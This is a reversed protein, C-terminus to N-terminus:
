ATMERYLAAYEAAMRGASFNDRVHKRGGTAISESFAEDSLLRDWCKMLGGVDGFPAMLGTKEHIILRDVGPIDFAAVPIGMAMAEMMCRPIGELSSTMCFLHMEKLIHLRDTRYGWFEIKTSSDLSAAFKELEKRMPGDGVLVLRIDNRKKCLLDFARIMDIINKRHAIQGVYGIIKENNTTFLPETDARQVAEVEALDVGNLILRIKDNAVRMKRIDFQLEESLPAVRDFYHFSFCGLRMFMQLKLDKVNEFGHPTALAKIGTIRAAILGLIDSKYGHTHIIDIKEDKILRCLRGIVRPDFRGQMKIKYGALGMRNYRQYIELNQSESECTVALRCDVKDSDISKGLALIWMEAGYLGAPCIFQLVNLKKM